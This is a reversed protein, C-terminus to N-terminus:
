VSMVVGWVELGPDLGGIWDRGVGGVGGCGVPPTLDLGLGRM